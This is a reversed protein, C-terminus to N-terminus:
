RDLLWILPLPVLLAADALVHFLESRLKQTYHLLLGLLGSSLAVVLATNRLGPNTATFWSWLSFSVLAVCLWPAAARWRLHVASVANPDATLGALHEARVISAMNLAFLAWMLRTETCLLGHESPTWFHVGASCGLTFLLSAVVEKPVMQRLGQDSRERLTTTVLILLAVTAAGRVLAPAQWVEILALGAVVAVLLLILHLLTGHRTSYTALYIVGALCLVVGQGLLGVPIEHLAIWVVLAAALPLVAGLFLRSHRRYFLHRTSMPQALRGSVADATRDVAYIIWTVLALGWYFAPALTLHHGQALAAMWAVAVLPADLSLVQPWLWWPTRADPPDAPKEPM